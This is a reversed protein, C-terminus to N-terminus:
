EPKRQYRRKSLRISNQKMLRKMTDLRDKLYNYERELEEMTKIDLLLDFSYPLRVDDNM